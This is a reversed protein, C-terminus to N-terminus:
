VTTQFITNEASILKDRIQAALDMALSANEVTTVAQTPDSITGTALGQSATTAAAQTSELSNLASTLAGGFSGAGSAPATSTTADAGLSGISGVSWEGAGLPGLAGSIAPIM